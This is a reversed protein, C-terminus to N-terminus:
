EMNNQKAGKKRKPSGCLQRRAVQGLRMGVQFSHEIAGLAVIQAIFDGIGFAQTAMFLQFRPNVPACAVVSRGLDFLFIATGAMTLVVAAVEIDHPEIFVLEFMFERTVREGSCMFRRIASLAMFCVEYGVVLQSFPFIGIQPKVPTTSGAVVIIVLLGQGVVAGFAM